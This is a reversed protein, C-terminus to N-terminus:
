ILSLVKSNYWNTFFLLVINGNNYTIYCPGSAADDGHIGWSLLLGQTWGSFTAITWFPVVVPQVTLSPLSCTSAGTSSQHAEVAV